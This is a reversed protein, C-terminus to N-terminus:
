AAAVAGHLYLILDEHQAEVPDGPRLSRLVLHRFARTGGRTVTVPPQTAPLRLRRINVKKDPQSSWVVLGATVAPSAPHDALIAAAVSPTRWTPETLPEGTPRAPRGDRNRYRGPRWCKSDLVLIRDGRTVIHDVDATLRRNGLNVSHFVHTHPDDGLFLRLARATSTEGQAGARLREQAQAGTATTYGSAGPTGHEEM